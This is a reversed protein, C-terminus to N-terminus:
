SINLARNCVEVIKILIHQLVGAFYLVFLIPNNNKPKQTTTDQIRSMHQVPTSPHWICGDWILITLPM